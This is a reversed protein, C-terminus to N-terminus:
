HSLLVSQLSFEAIAPGKVAAPTHRRLWALLEAVQSPPAPQVNPRLHQRLPHLTIAGKLTRIRVFWLWDHEGMGGARSGFFREEAGYEISYVERLAMQRRRPWV